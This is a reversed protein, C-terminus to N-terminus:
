AERDHADEKDIRVETTQTTEGNRQVIRQHRHVSTRTGRGEAVNVAAAVNADREIRRALQEILGM